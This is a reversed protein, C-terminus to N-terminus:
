VAGLPLWNQTDRNQLAPGIIYAVAPLGFAATILGGISWIAISSFERRSLQQKEDM